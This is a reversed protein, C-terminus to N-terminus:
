KAWKKLLREFLLQDKNKRTWNENKVLEYCTTLPTPDDSSIFEVKDSFGGYLDFIQQSKQL